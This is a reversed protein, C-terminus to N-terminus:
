LSSFTLMLHWNIFEGFFTWFVFFALCWLTHEPKLSNELHSGIALNSCFYQPSFDLWSVFLFNSYCSYIWQLVVAIIFDVQHFGEICIESSTLYLYSFGSSWSLLLINRPHYFVFWHVALFSENNHKAAYLTFFSPPIISKM